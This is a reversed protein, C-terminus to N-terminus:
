CFTFSFDPYLDKIKPIVIGLAGLIIYNIMYKYEEKECNLLTNLQNLLYKQINELNENELISDSKNFLEETSINERQENSFNQFWFDRLEYNFKILKSKTLNLFDLYDIFISIKSFNQFVDLALNEVSKNNKVLELDILEISDFLFLPLPETSIPHVSINYSKLYKLSEREFCRVVQKTDHYVILEHYNELPYMLKRKGNEEIWFINMSIPDRDENCLILYEDPNLYRDQYTSTLIPTLLTSTLKPQDIQNVQDVSHNKVLEDIQNKHKNYAKLILNYTTGNTKIEKLTRPNINPNLKWKVLEDVTLPLKSIHSKM